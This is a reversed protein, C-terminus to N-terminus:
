SGEEGARVFNASIEKSEQSSQGPFESIHLLHQLLATKSNALSRGLSQPDDSEVFRPYHSNPFM